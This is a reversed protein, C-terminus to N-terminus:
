RNKTLLHDLQNLLEFEAGIDDFFHSAHAIITVPAGAQRVQAPWQKSVVSDADGFVAAYPINLQPLTKLVREQTWAVYSLYAPATSHYQKCFGLEFNGLANKDTAALKLATKKDVRGQSFFKHEMDSLSIFILKSVEPAPKDMVYVLFQIAAFSHGILAIKGHGRAVLWNVWQRVEEVDDSLSHTHIAECALSQSRRNIGLSLTPSLVTYGEDALAEALNYILPFNRTQLYGHLLLLAPKDTKGARYDASATIGSPLRIEVEQAGVCSTYLALSLLLGSWRLDLIIKPM